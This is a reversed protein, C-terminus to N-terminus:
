IIEWGQGRAHAALREDPYVAVPKGMAELLPIDTYSDAYGYSAEWDIPSSKELHEQLRAM